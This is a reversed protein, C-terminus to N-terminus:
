MIFMGDPDMRGRGPVRLHDPNPEGFGPVPLHDPNPEGLGPGIPDFRPLMGGGGARGPIVQGWAPHRPGLLGGDPVWLGQPLVPGGMFGPSFPDLGPRAPAPFRRDEDFGPEQESRQPREDPAPRKTASGVGRKEATPSEGSSGDLVKGFRATSNHLGLLRLAVGTAMKEQWVNARASVAAPDSEAATADVALSVTLLEAGPKSSAAHVMLNGGMTIAKVTFMEVPDRLPHMYGFTYIDPTVNWGRPVVEITAAGDPGVAIAPASGDTKEEAGTCVFGHELMTSHMALAARDQENRVPVASLLAQFFM